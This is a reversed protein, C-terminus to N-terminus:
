VDGREGNPGRAVRRARAGASGPHRAPGQVEASGSGGGTLV